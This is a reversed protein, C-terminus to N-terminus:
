PKLTKRVEKLLRAKLIVFIVLGFAGAAVFEYRKDNFGTWALILCGFICLTYLSNLFIKKKM